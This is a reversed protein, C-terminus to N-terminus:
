SFMKRPILALDIENKTSNVNSGNISCKVKGGNMESTFSIGFKVTESNSCNGSQLQRSQINEGTIQFASGNAYVLEIILHTSPVGVDGTCTHLRDDRYYGLDVIQDTHM